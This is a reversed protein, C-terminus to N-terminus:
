AARKGRSPAGSRPRDRREAVAESPRVVVLPVDAARLIVDAPSGLSVGGLGSSAHAASIVLGCWVREPAKDSALEGMFAPLEGIRALTTVRLGQEHITLHDALGELYSSALEEAQAALIAAELETGPWREHRCSWSPIPDVARLLLLESGLARAFQTATPLATEAFPSGDLPVVIRKLM